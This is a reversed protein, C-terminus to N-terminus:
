INESATRGATETNTGEDAAFQSYVRQSFSLTKFGTLFNDSRNKLVPQTIKAGALQGLALSSM